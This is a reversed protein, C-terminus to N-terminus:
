ALASSLQRRGELREEGLTRRLRSLLTNLVAAPDRPLAEGWVAEVLQDRSVPVHRNLVLYAFLRRGQRGRVDDDVRRGDLEVHLKGCLEIRM